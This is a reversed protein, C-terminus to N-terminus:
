RSPLSTRASQYEGAVRQILEAVSVVADVGAVGHGASFMEAGIGADGLEPSQLVDAHFRPAAASGTSPGNRRIISTPLGTVASTLEVDDMSAAVVADKYNQAALSETTAIMPTGMYALDYGAARAALLSAGDTIGGALVLPGRWARRIARVFVLPNAWGTQGGAGATLLVLGDVGAEIARQAHRLSAVDSFVLAGADHLPGVVHAPSGVSTIVAKVSYRALVALDAELRVNTRHVVLNPIVLDAVPSSLETMWQDLVSPSPANHVPFSGGIGQGAAAAVLAPGSVGTMPAAIVPLRFRALFEEVSEPRM